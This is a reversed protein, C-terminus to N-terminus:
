DHAATAGFFTVLNRFFESLMKFLPKISDEDTVDYLALVGDVDPMGQDAVRKPWHVVDGETVEVNEFGLEVLRVISIRGELSVKKSSIPSSSAKKLDLACVCFTSKGM